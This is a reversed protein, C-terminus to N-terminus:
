TYAYKLWVSFLYLTIRRRAIGVAANYPIDALTKGVAHFAVASCVLLSEVAPLNIYVRAMRPKRFHDNWNVSVIDEDAMQHAPLEAGAFRLFM